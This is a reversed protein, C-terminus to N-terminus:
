ERIHVSIKISKVLKYGFLKVKLSYFQFIDPKIKNRYTM